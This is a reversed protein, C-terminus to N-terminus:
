THYNRLKFSCNYHNNPVYLNKHPLNFVCILGGNGKYTCSTIRMELYHNSLRFFGKSIKDQAFETYIFGENLPKTHYILM